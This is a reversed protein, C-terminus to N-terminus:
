KTREEKLQNKRTLDRENQELTLADYQRVDLFSAPRKLKKELYLYKKEAEKSLHPFYEVRDINLLKKYYRPIALKHGQVILHLNQKIQDANEKVYDAGLGKSMLRFPKEREGYREKAQEGTLWKDKAIYNCVYRISAYNVTGPYVNGKKWRDEWPYEPPLGFILAHYHPRLTNEGYEGALYYKIKKGELDKRVLKLWLQIDRKNISYDSPIHDDDYTLTLFTAIKHKDLEYLLRASWEQGKTVRCAVCQGCPIWIQGTGKKTKLSIPRVCKM